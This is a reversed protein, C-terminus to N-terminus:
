HDDRRPTPSASRGAAQPISRNSYRDTKVASKKSLRTPQKNEKPINQAKTRRGGKAPPMPRCYRRPDGPAPSNSIGRNAINGYNKVSSFVQPTDSPSRSQSPRVVGDFRSSSRRGLHRVSSATQHVLSPSNSRSKQPIHSNGFLPKKSEEYFESAEHSEMHYHNVFLTRGLKERIDKRRLPDVFHILSSKKLNLLPKETQSEFGLSLEEETLNFHKLFSDRGMQNMLATIAAPLINRFLSFKDLKKLDLIDAKETVKPSLSRVLSDPSVGRSTVSNNRLPSQRINEHSSLKQLNRPSHKKPLIAINKAKM